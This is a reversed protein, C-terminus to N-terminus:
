SEIINWVNATASSSDSSFCRCRVLLEAEHPCGDNGVGKPAQAASDRMALLKSFCLKCEATRRERDKKM